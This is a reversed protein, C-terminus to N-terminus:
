KHFVYRNKLDDYGDDEDDENKELLSTRSPQPRCESFVAATHIASASPKLLSHKDCGNNKSDDKKQKRDCAYFERLASRKLLDYGSSNEKRHRGRQRTKM